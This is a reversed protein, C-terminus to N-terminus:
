LTVAEITATGNALADYESKTLRLEGAFRRSGKEGAYLRVFYTKEFGTRNTFSERDKLAAFM